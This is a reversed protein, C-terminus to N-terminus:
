YWSGGGFKGTANKYDLTTLPRRKCEPAGTYSKPPDVIKFTVISSEKDNSVGTAVAARYVSSVDMFPNEKTGAGFVAGGLQEKLCQAPCEVAYVEGV